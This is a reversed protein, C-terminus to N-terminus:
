LIHECEERVDWPHYGSRTVQIMRSLLIIPYTERESQIFAFGM